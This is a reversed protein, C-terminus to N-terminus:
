CCLGGHTCDCCMDACMLGCCIDCCSCGGMGADTRYPNTNNQASSGFNGQRQWMIRNLAARYEPNNPEMNCATTFHSMAEELWGRHFLVTGMLFHWEAGRANIPMGNLLEEAEFIRGTQIFYRIDNLQTSGSNQYYGQTNNYPNKLRRENMITDFANNIEQMKQEAADKLPSDAYNDPHYKKALERYTNKIQEDTDSQKVGLVDYPNPM